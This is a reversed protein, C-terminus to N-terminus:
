PLVSGVGYRVLATCGINITHFITGNEQKASGPGALARLASDQAVDGIEKVARTAIDEAIERDLARDAPNEDFVGAAALEDGVFGGDLEPALEDIVHDLGMVKMGLLVREDEVANGAIDMLRLHEIVGKVDARDNIEVAGVHVLQHLAELAAREALVAEIVGIERDDLVAEFGVLAFGLRHQLEVALAEHVLDIGGLFRGGHEVVDQTVDVFALLHRRLLETGEGGAFEVTGLTAAGLGHALAQQEHEGGAFEVLIKTGAAGCRESLTLDGSNRGSARGLRRSAAGAFGGHEAAPASSRHADNEHAGGLQSAFAELRKDAFRIEGDGGSDRLRVTGFAAVELEVRGGDLGGCKLLIKGHELGLASAIRVEDVLEALELGVEDNDDGVPLNQGAFDEIERAEAAQVDVSGQE